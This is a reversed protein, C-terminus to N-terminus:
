EIMKTDQSLHAKFGAVFVHGCFNPVVKYFIGVISILSSIVIIKENKYPNKSIKM